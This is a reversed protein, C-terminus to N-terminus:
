HSFGSLFSVRVRVGRSPPNLFRPTVGGEVCVCVCVCVGQFSFNCHFSCICREGPTLQAETSVNGMVGGRSAVGNEGPAQLRSNGSSLYIRVFSPSRSTMADLNVSAPPSPGQACVDSDIKSTVLPIKPLLHTSVVSPASLLHPVPASGRHALGEAM